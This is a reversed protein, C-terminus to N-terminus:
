LFLILNFERFIFVCEFNIKQIIQILTTTKKQIKINSIDIDKKDINGWWWNIKHFFVKQAYWLM